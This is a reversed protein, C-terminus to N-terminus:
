APPLMWFMFRRHTSIIRIVRWRNRTVKWSRFDSFLRIFFLSPFFDLSPHSAHRILTWPGNMESIFSVAWGVCLFEMIWPRMWKLHLGTVLVVARVCECMVLCIEGVELWWSHPLLYFELPLDCHHLPLGLAWSSCEMILMELHVKNWDWTISFAFVDDCLLHCKMNSFIREQDKDSFCLTCNWEQCVLGCLSELHLVEEHAVPFTHTDQDGPPSGAPVNAWPFTV